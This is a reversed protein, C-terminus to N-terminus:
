LRSVTTLLVAIASCTNEVMFLMKIVGYVGGLVYGGIVVYLGGLVYGGIVVYLGGLVYGGIVVYLGGLVYGGPISAGLLDFGFVGCVIPVSILRCGVM